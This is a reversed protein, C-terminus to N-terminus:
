ASDNHVLEWYIVARGYESWVRVIMLWPVTPTSTRPTDLPAAATESPVASNTADNEAIEKRPTSDQWVIISLCCGMYSYAM